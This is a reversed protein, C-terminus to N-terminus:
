NATGHLSATAENGSRARESSAAASLAGGVCFVREGGNWSSSRNECGGSKLVLVLIM